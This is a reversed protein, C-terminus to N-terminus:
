RSAILDNIKAVTEADPRQVAAVPVGRPRVEIYGQMEQHLASCFYICYFPPIGLTDAKWRM